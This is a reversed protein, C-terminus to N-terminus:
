RREHIRYQLDYDLIFDLWCCKGNYNFTSRSVSWGKLGIAEIWMIQDHLEHGELAVPVMTAASVASMLAFGVAVYKTANQSLKGIGPMIMAAAFPLIWVLWASIATIEFGMLETAM